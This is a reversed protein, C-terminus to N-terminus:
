IISQPKETLPEQARPNSATDGYFARQYIGANTNTTLEMHSIVFDYNGDVISIKLLNVDSLSSKIYTNGPSVDITEKFAIASAPDFIDLLPLTGGGGSLSAANGM